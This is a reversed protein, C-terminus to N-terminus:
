KDPDKAIFNAIVGVIAGVGILVQNFAANLTAQTEPDVKDPLFIGLIILIGSIVGAVTTKWNKM